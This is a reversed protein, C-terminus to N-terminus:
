VRKLQQFLNEAAEEVSASQHLCRIFLSGVIAGSAYRCAQTFTKSNSVGFGILRKHKLLMREIRGFYEIEEKGFEERMGTISASSVMYIFGHCNKDILRIREESTEPTILMIVPINYQESWAQYHEQYEKFPLDPIILADIGIEKCRKFLAKIGFQLIPNLYGMLILPIDCYTRVDELQKLLLSLSMGNKLALLSSEQIVKGDAMPDSFPIGIEIMDAGKESLTRIITGTSDLSPYGATFYVSLINKESTSWLKDIRNKIREM